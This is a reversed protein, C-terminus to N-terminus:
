SLRPRGFMVTRKMLSIVEQKCPSTVFDSLLRTEPLVINEHALDINRSWKGDVEVVSHGKILQTAMNLEDTSLPSLAEEAREATNLIATLMPAPNSMVEDELAVGSYALAEVAEVIRIYILLITNMCFSISSSAIAAFSGIFEENVSRSLSKLEVGGYSYPLDLRDALIDMDPFCLKPRRNM